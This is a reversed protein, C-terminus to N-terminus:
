FNCYNNFITSIEPMARGAAPQSHYLVWNWSSSENRVDGALRGRAFSGNQRLFDNYVQSNKGVVVSLIYRTM